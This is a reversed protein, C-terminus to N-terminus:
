SSSAAPRTRRSTTSRSASAQRTSPPPALVLNGTTAKLTLNGSQARLVGSDAISAGTLVLTGGIPASALSPATGAGPAIALAGTTVLSQTAGVGAVVAPASLTVAAAGADLSGAGAFLIESGANVAVNAFGNLTKTGAGFTVAGSADLTLGGGAGGTNAGAANATAQNDVLVINSATVTAAGGDGYFGSGDLTLTGIPAAAAGFAIAGYFNFVSASRLSVTEAGAFNAIVNASLALGGAGGGLDIVSGSLDYNKAKLVADQALTSSGSSDLTLANGSINAGAGISLSGLAIPAVPGTVSTAPPTYIGPVFNRTVTVAAGNSVRLLAGDGSVGTSYGLKNGYADYVIVPNVGFALPADSGAAVVGRAAIVSGAAVTIGHM